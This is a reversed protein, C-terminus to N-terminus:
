PTKIVLLNRELGQFSAKLSVLRGAQPCVLKIESTDCNVTTQIKVGGEWEASIIFGAFSSICLRTEDGVTEIHVTTDRLMQRIENNTEVIVENAQPM